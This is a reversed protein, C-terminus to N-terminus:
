TVEPEHSRVVPVSMPVGHQSTRGEINVQAGESSGVGCGDTDPAGLGNGVVSGLM